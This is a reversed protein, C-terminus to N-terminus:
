RCPGASGCAWVHRFACGWFCRLFRGALGEGSLLALAACFETKAPGGGADEADRTPPALRPLMARALVALCAAAVVVVSVYMCKRVQAGETKWGDEM